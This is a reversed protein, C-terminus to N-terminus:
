PAALIRLLQASDVAGLDGAVFAVRQKKRVIRLRPNAEAARAFQKADRATDWETVAALVAEDGRTWLSWADGGWGSAAENTWAAGALADESWAGPTQAGVLLGLFLEGFRGNAEGTWGPLAAFLDPAAVPKPEDRKRPDWYKEPHLLQESSAPPERFAREVNAVPYSTGRVVAVDGHALFSAGLIYAGLLPRRLVDSSAALRKVEEVQSTAVAGLDERALFGEKLGRATYAAMVLTASGEHVASLAFSRDADDQVREIRADLDYHQDELAHTLEHAALIPGAGAPLNALLYFTQKGPDYFGAAADGATVAYAERLSTAPPLLGLIRDVLEEAAVEQPSAFRDIRARVYERTQEGTVREIAVPHKFKLGRIEEVRRSIAELDLAQEAAPDPLPAPPEPEQAVALLTVLALLPLV